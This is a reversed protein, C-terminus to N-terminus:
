QQTQHYSHAQWILDKNHQPIKRDIGVKSLTNTIFPHQIKDFEKKADIPPILHNNDKTKIHCIINISKCIDFCEQMGPIYRMQDLNIIKRIHPLIQTALIENVIEVCASEQSLPNRYTRPGPPDRWCVRRHPQSNEGVLAVGM